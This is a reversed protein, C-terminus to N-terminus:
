GEADRLTVEHSYAEMALSINHDLMAVATTLQAGAFPNMRAITINHSALLERIHKMDDAVKATVVLLDLNIGSFDYDVEGPIYRYDGIQRATINNLPATYAVDGGAQMISEVEADARAKLEDLEKQEQRLQEEYILSDSTSSITSIVKDIAELPMELKGELVKARKAQLDDIVDQATTEETIPGSLGAFEQNEMLKALVDAPLSASQYGELLMMDAVEEPTAAGTDTLVTAGEPLVTGGEVLGGEPKPTDTGETVVTGASATEAAKAAKAAAIKAQLDSM